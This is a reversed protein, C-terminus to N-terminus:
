SREMIITAPAIDRGYYKDEYDYCKDEYDYWKDEYPWGVDNREQAAPDFWPSLAQVPTTSAREKKPVAINVRGYKTFVGVTKYRPAAQIETRAAVGAGSPVEKKRMCRQADQSPSGPRIFNISAM